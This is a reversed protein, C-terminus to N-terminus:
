KEAHTILDFKNDRKKYFIEVICSKNDSLDKFNIKITIGGYLDLKKQYEKDPFNGTITLKQDIGTYTLGECIPRNLLDNKIQNLTLYTFKYPGEKENAINNEDDINANKKTKDIAVPKSNNEPLQHDAINVSDPKSIIVNKSSSSDKESAKLNVNGSLGTNGIGTKSPKNFFLFFATIGIALFLSIFILLKKKSLNSNFLKRPGPQIDKSLEANGVPEETNIKTEPTSSSTVLKNIESINGTDDNTLATDGTSVVSDVNTDEAVEASNTIDTVTDTAALSNDIEISGSDEVTNIINEGTDPIIIGKNLFDMAIDGNDKEAGSVKNINNNDAQSLSIEADISSIPTDLTSNRVDDIGKIEDEKNVLADTKSSAANETPLKKEVTGSKENNADGTDIKSNEKEIPGITVPKGCSPCKFKRGSYKDEFSKTNGCSKCTTIIM